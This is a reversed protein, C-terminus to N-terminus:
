YKQFRIVENASGHQVQLVSIGNSLHSVMLSYQTLGAVTVQHLQERGTMDFVRILTPEAPGDWSISLFNNTPNPYAKLQIGSQLADMEVSIIKHYTSVGDIDVQRLRYYNLGSIPAADIFHYSRVTYSTGAGQLRGIELFHIGDTSREIAVFDNNIETATSWSLNIHNGEPEGSFSLLAIPLVQDITIVVQGDAGSGAEGSSGPGAEGGGGGGPAFGNQGNGNNPTGGNGGDGGDANVGSGGAGAVSTGNNGLDGPGSIGGAEGGGGGGNGSTSGGAGGSVPSGDNGASGAALGGFGPGSGLAASGGAAYTSGEFSSLGGASGPAGGQGVIVSYNGATLTLISRAYAGGGGGGTAHAGIGGAGGAGWVEVTVLATYGTPVTYTFSGATVYSMNIPQGWIWTSITLALAIIILKQMFPRTQRFTTIVVRRSQM